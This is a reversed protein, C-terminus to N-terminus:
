EPYMIKLTKRNERQNFVYGRCVVCRQKNKNNRKDFSASQRFAGRVNGEHTVLHTDHISYVVEIISQSRLSLILPTLHKETQEASKTRLWLPERCEANKYM